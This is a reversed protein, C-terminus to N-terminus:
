TPQSLNELVKELLRVLMDQEVESFGHTIDSAEVYVIRQARELLDAARQTPKLLSARGDQPSPQKEILEDRQMRAILTSVTPSEVRLIRRVDAITMDDRDGIAVLVNYAGPSLGVRSLQVARRQASKRAVGSCLDHIRRGNRIRLPEDDHQM